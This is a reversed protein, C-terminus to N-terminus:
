SNICKLNIKYFIHKWKNNSIWFGYIMIFLIEFDYIMMTFYIGLHLIIGFILLLPRLQKFWILFPFLIEFLITTYTTVAIIVSNKYFLDTIPANFRELQWIYYTAVGNFWVDANVKHIGSIFYALCMHLMISFSALNSFINGLSSTKYQKYLTLYRYSNTFTMYILIFYLLNDGGNALFVFPEFYLVVSFFLLFATLHKGIGFINLIALIITIIHFVPIDNFLRENVFPILNSYKSQFINPNLFLSTSGWNLYIKKLIHFSIYVRFIPLYFEFLNTSSLLKYKNKIISIGNSQKKM